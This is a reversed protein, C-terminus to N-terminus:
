DRLSLDVEVVLSWTLILFLEHSSVKVAVLAFIRGNVRIIDSTFLWLPGRRLPNAANIARISGNEPTLSMTPGWCPIVLSVSAACRALIRNKAPTRDITFKSVKRPKWSRAACHVFISADRTIRHTVTLGSRTSSWCRGISTSRAVFTANTNLSMRALNRLSRMRHLITTTSVITNRWAVCCARKCDSM